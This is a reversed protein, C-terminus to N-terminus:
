APLSSQRLRSLAWFCTSCSVLPHLIVTASNVTHLGQVPRFNETGPKQVPFLPTNWPSQCPWLIGYKLLRNLHKQIGIQTKCPIYYQRQSVPIAGPKLEAVMPPIDQTRRPPLPNDEAWVGPSSLFSLCRLFRRRLPV